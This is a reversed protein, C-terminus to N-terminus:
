AFSLFFKVLNQRIIKKEVKNYKPAIRKLCMKSSNSVNKIFCKFIIKCTKEFFFKVFFFKM